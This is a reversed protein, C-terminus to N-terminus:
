LRGAVVVSGRATLVIERDEGVVELLIIYIGIRARCRKEDFGDWVVDGSGGCPENYALFRILRGRIDFIKLSMWSSPRSTQFHIITFDEHGDGDPSFPNPSAALRANSGALGARISNPRGPTGGMVAVSTGWNRADQSPLDPSIRELSRGVPDSLVPSHWRSDYAVSDVARGTADRLVIVDADNNLQLSSTGAIATLHFDYIGFRRVLTSDSALVFLAGPVLALTTRSLIFPKAGARGPGGLSWGALDITDRGANQIEVSEAEGQRPVAMIENICLFPDRYGVTVWLSL